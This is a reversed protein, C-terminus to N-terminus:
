LSLRISRDRVWGGIITPSTCGGGGTVASSSGRMDEEGGREGSAGGKLYINLYNNGNDLTEIGREGGVRWGTTSVLM